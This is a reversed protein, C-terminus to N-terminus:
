REVMSLFNKLIYFVNCKTTLLFTWTGRSYDDVITLFHKYGNYTAHKHPGWTDIHILDFLGKTKISSTPFTSRTQKAQPCVHCILTSESPHKIFNFFKMVSLPLHGLRMHWLSVDSVTRTIVPCSVPIFSSNRGQSFSMSQNVSNLSTKSITPHLLYLGKRVEGFAVVRKTLLDQLLCQSSTFLVNRNIQNCLKHMSLLNYKFAPVHLVNILTLNPLLSINGIHTVIVKFSNPLSISIPVPLPTM